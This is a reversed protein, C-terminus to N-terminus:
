HTLWYTPLSQPQCLLQIVAGKCPGLLWFSIRMAICMWIGMLVGVTVAWFYAHRLASSAIRWGAAVFFLTSLFEFLTVFYPAWVLMPTNQYYWWGAQRALNEFVLIIVGGLGATIFSAAVFSRRQRIWEGILGLETFILGWALPLYAPSVGIKPFTNPYYLVKMTDVLFVDCDSLVEVGGTVVGFVLWLWVTHDGTRAGYVIFIVYVAVITVVLPLPGLSFAANVVAEVLLIAITVAVLKLPPDQSRM